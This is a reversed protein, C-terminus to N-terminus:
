ESRGEGQPSPGDVHACPLPSGAALFALSDSNNATREDATPLTRRVVPMAALVARQSACLDALVLTTMTPM